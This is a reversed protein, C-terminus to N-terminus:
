TLPALRRRPRHPLLRRPRRRRPPTLVVPAVANPVSVAVTTPLADASVAPVTAPMTTVPGNAASNMPPSPQAATDASKCGTVIVGAAIFLGACVKSVRM